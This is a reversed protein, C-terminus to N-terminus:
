GRALGAPAVDRHVPFCGVAASAPLRAGALLLALWPFHPQTQASGVPDGVRHTENRKPRSPQPACILWIPTSRGTEQEKAATCHRRAAPSDLVPKPGGAHRDPPADEGAHRSASGPPATPSVRGPGPAAAPRLWSGAALRLSEPVRPRSRATRKRPLPADM